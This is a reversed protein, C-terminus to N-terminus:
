ESNKRVRPLIFNASVQVMLTTEMTQNHHVVVGSCKNHLIRFLYQTQRSTPNGRLDCAIKNDSREKNELSILGGFFPGTEVLVQTEGKHCTTALVRVTLYM